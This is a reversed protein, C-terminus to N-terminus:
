YIYIYITYPSKGGLMYSILKVLNITRFYNSKEKIFCGEVGSSGCKYEATLENYNGPSHKECTPKPCSSNTAIQCINPGERVYGKCNIDSDCFKKCFLITASCYCREHFSDPGTCCASRM